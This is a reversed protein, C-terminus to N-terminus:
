DDWGEKKLGDWGENAQFRPAPYASNEILDWGEIAIGVGEPSTRKLQSLNTKNM